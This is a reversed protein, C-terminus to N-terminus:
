TFLFISFFPNVILFIISVYSQLIQVYVQSFFGFNSYYFWLQNKNTLPFLLKKPTSYLLLRHVHAALLMIASRLMLLYMLARLM